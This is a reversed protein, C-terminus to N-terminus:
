SRGHNLRHVEKLERADCSAAHAEKLEYMESKMLIRQEERMQKALWDNNRDEKLVTAARLGRISHDESLKEMGVEKRPAPALRAPKNKKKPPRAPASFSKAPSGSGSSRKAGNVVAMIIRFLVVFWLVSFISSIITFIGAM